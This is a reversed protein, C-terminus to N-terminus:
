AKANKLKNYTDWTSQTSVLTCPICIIFEFISFRSCQSSDEAGATGLSFALRFLRWGQLCKDSSELISKIKLTRIMSSFMFSTQRSNPKLKEVPRLKTRLYLFVPIYSPFSRIM